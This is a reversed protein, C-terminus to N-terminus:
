NKNRGETSDYVTPRSIESNNMKLPSELVRSRRGAAAGPGNAMRLWPSEFWGSETLARRPRQELRTRRHRRSGPGSLRTNSGAANSKSAHRNQGRRRRFRSRLARAARPAAAAATDSVRLSLLNPAAVSARLFQRPGAPGAPDSDLCIMFKLDLPGGPGALSDSLAPGFGESLVQLVRRISLSIM